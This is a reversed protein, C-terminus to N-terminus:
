CGPHIIVNIQKERTSYILHCRLIEPEQSMCRNFGLEIGLSGGVSLEEADKSNDSVGGPRQEENRRLSATKGSGQSRRREGEERPCLEYRRGSKGSFHYSSALLSALVLEVVCSVRHARHLAEKGRGTRQVKSCAYQSRECGETAEWLALLEAKHTSVVGFRPGM